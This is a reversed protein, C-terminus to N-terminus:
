FGGCYFRAGAATTPDPLPELQAEATRVVEDWFGQSFALEYEDCASAQAEDGMENYGDILEPISEGALEGSLPSPEIDMIEPDGDRYGALVRRYTEDSTNGDFVWSGRAKGAEYADM